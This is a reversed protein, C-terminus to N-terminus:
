PSVSAEHHSQHRLHSTVGNLHIRNGYSAGVSRYPTPVLTRHTLRQGWTLGVVAARPRRSSRLPDFTMTVM